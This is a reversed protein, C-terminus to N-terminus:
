TDLRRTNEDVDRHPIAREQVACFAQIQAGHQVAAVGLLRPM